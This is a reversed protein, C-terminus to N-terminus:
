SMKAFNECRAFFLFLDATQPFFRTLVDKCFNQFAAFSFVNSNEAFSSQRFRLPSVTM